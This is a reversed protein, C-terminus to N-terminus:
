FRAKIGLARNIKTNTSHKIYIFKMLIFTITKNLGFVSNQLALFISVAPIAHLANNAISYM